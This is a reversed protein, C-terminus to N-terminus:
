RGLELFKMALSLTDPDLAAPRKMKDNQIDDLCEQLIKLINQYQQSSAGFTNLANTLNAYIQSLDPPAQNIRHNLYVQDLLENYDTIASDM